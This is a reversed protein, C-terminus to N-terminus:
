LSPTPPGQPPPPDLAMQVKADHNKPSEQTGGGGQHLVCVKLNVPLASIEDAAPVLFRCIAAPWSYATADATCKEAASQSLRISISGGRM